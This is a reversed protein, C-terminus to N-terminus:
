GAPAFNRKGQTWWEMIDEYFSLLVPVVILVLVTSFMLGFSISTAMPILFQAQLSTEFLLPLLGGITTLSTLLVARLRQCAAEVLAERNSLGNERLRRYFTVLVISDNVVIGSLGFFGFLSLITLDLGMAWHGFIAGVLGFPIIFMVILPWGYSSFVWSLVLFMMVLALVSGYQMDEMTERQEAARGEFSTTVGYRARLKPLLTKELKALIENANNVGKDVSATVEVALRGEAHRLTQFGRQTRIDVADSLPLREGDPLQLTLSALGALRHREALPLAVRVEIEDEGDLYIQALHGDFAARLQRGVSDVTLGMAQALPTLTYIWEEQGYPIDDEIGSVGAENQLAHQLAESAAKVKQLDIGSLRVSIDEGPPGPKRETITFSELGAPSQIRARWAQRFEPNRVTRRDSSVLEIVLSGYQDGAHSGLGASTGGHKVLAFKVVGGGFERDTEWLTEELHGLFADVREPSSGAAFGANARLLNGEPAPFFTFKVRQGVVLSLSILLMGILLAVVLWRFELGHEIWRRFRQEKFWEFGQELRQRFRSDPKGHMAHFSHRLHGPLILFCEVLSAALVCLVVLPIEFLVNGMLGGVMMLPMFAAVTTLSAAFVPALMRQAGGEAALLENEGYQYHAYADEGVMIADDVVIGLTMIMGFLSIMNISGGVLYLIVLMGMLSVPIGVAVWFAVRGHLFLFLVILVLALGGAGNRVLLSIREQILEWTEDYITLEINPPLTPRTEEVWAEFIGAVTLANENRARELALEVVPKGDVSLTQQRDRARRVVEAVDGLRILRGQTDTILPLQAFEDPARRQDLGRLQRAIDDRGVIGAPVDKSFAAIRDAVQKLTMGLAQLRAASIQVLIEEEPLGQINVKRIGKALLEREFRQVLPRLEAPDEPGSVILKAVPDYRVIRSIEPKESTAPLNRLLAIQEKVDDMAMGIDSGEEYELLIVSVGRSSTSTMKRVGDLGRLEQEIPTTIGTEIDEAGAGRWSTMVQVYDLDFNPFFQVNLKLLAYGGGLLMMLMLLNAAVKHRAFLGVLNNQPQIAPLHTSM